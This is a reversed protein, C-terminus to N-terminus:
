GEVKYERREIKEWNIYDTSQALEAHPIVARNRAMIIIPLKGAKIQHWGNEWTEGTQYDIWPEDGPLYVHRSDIDEFLPAVLLDSGFLYQNDVQWAGPDDPYEVFLARMMPLGQQSSLKAQEYIYPILRYRMNMIDRFLSLFAESYTWPEKPPMGHSRAHSSLAGFALWRAYLNEPTREVFGGIDHSWFSFGSLGISLGGRLVGAMGNNSTCADGGWHVPYRQSGAWGSRGWIIQEGTVEHTIDAVAKNYRTPYLNHEYFGSKGNHYIGHFPAAEGFDAKIAAVGMELLKRLKDQYWTITDPNTFDLIADEYPLSGKSNRVFLGKDIIEDFLKNAPVFYPLQWLSIRFGQERLDAILKQPDKFRSTSFEFDCLIDREFWGSDYHIVDCPIQHERMRAAVERGEDETLYTIRSMWFGFSWLPLMAPKGTISTYEDLIDKPTGIFIFLDLEDDGSYITNVGAYHKGMDCTIPASTHLFMGYGMNSLFFPIPKHSKDNQSGRADDTYLHLKQGRKNFEGYQEGFGFIKEGPMSNFVCAIRRAYDSARRVWAFPMVSTLTSTNDSAHNTSTVLKEQRDLVELKWPKEHLIISGHKSEFRHSRGEQTYAWNQSVPVPRADLMLSDSDSDSVSASSKSKATQLKLRITRESVFQIAFPLVPSAEYEDPPFENPSTKELKMDMSNFALITAYRHRHYIIHGLGTSPDFGTLEDALYYTNDFSFFDESQDPAKNLIPM